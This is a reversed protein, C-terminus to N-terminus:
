AALAHKEQAPKNNRMDVRTRFRTAADRSQQAYDRYTDGASLMRESRRTLRDIKGQRGSDEAKAKKNEARQMKANYKDAQKQWDKAIWEAKNARVRDAINRGKNGFYEKVGRGFDKVKEKPETILKNKTKDVLEDAKANTKDIVGDRKEAAKDVISDYKYVLKDKAEDMKKLVHKGGDKSALARAVDATKGALEKTKTWAGKARERTQKNKEAGISRLSDKNQDANEQQQDPKNEAGPGGINVDTIKLDKASPQSGEPALFDVPSSNFFNKFMNDM